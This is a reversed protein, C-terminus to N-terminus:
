KKISRVLKGKMAGAKLRLYKLYNLIKGSRRRINYFGRIGRMRSDLSGDRYAYEVLDLGRDEEFTNLPYTKSIFGREGELCYQSMRYYSSLTLMRPELKKEKVLNAFPLVTTNWDSIEKISGDSEKKGERTLKTMSLDFKGGLIGMMEPTFFDFSGRVVGDQNNVSNSLVLWDGSDLLDVFLSDNLIFNDDHTFLLMDYDRYDHMELWQNSIGWDGITNETEVYSWGLNRIEEVTAVKEYMIRDYLSRRDFGLKKLDREKEPVAYKPDRHSVCFYDVRWGSPVKQSIMTKYFHLPFHWGGAVVALKKM